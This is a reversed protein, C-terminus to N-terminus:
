CRGRGRGSAASRRSTPGAPWWPRRRGGAVEAASGVHDDHFHTLVVHEVDERRRGLVRLAAAVLDGSGRWGTDVVAVGESGVWPYSNLLHARDTPIRLRYLDPAIPPLDPGPM